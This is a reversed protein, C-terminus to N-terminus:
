TADLGTPVFSARERIGNFEIQLRQAAPSGSPAPSGTIPVAPAPASVAPAPNPRSPLEPRVLDEPFLKRFADERFRPTRPQLDIQAIKTSETRQGTVFFLRTGDPSWAISGVNRNALFSVARAEGGSARVVFVNTFGSPEGTTYAIWDGAPSFAIENIDGFPLRPLEGRAAIRDANAAVDFVHLERGDRVYAFSKGDPAWRPYDDHHGAPTLIRQAGDPLDAIAIAQERGRDVVYALRRSGAAWAPLDFAADNRTTVLQAEGGEQASAAFIRGRAVFALKKGDPALALGSFQNTQTVHRQLVVDPLGRLAISLEHPTGSNTEYTWIRMNREFAILRGDHSMSPWLVRGSKLATLQKTRGDAGRTWLEDSGSRDSVFYLSRGDPAWMPWQDKSDGNTVTDFKKAAPQAIVLETQDMHSHGRRWWQPFGGRVYAISYGDPSPAASTGNVYSEAVIKMPTGGTSPVRYVDADYAINHSNSSFYLYRGDASWASLDPTQDDHTLRQLAGGDLTLVYIGNSGAQTSVFALRKGDPAFLPRKAAGGVAALLRATGGSSPVSWIDGGSVFAIEAHDPSLSPEALAPTAVSATDAASTALPVCALVFACVGVAILIRVAM